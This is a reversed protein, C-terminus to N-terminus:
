SALYGYAEPPRQSVYRIPVTGVQHRPKQM